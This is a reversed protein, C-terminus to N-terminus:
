KGGVPRVDLIASGEAAGTVTMAHIGSDPINVGITKQSNAPLDEGAFINAVTLKYPGGVTTVVLQAAGIQMEYRDVDFHGNDIKINLKQIDTPLKNVDAPNVGAPASGTDTAHKTTTTDCGAIVFAVLLLVVFAMIPHTRKM